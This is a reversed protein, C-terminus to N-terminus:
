KAPLLQAVEPLTCWEVPSAGALSAVPRTQSANSHRATFHQAEASGGTGTINRVDYAELLAIGTGDAVGAVVATYGGPPLVLVVGSDMAGPPNPFLSAESGAIVAGFDDNEAIVRGGADHIWLYPNPLAGAVGFDSLTPGKATILVRVPEPGGVHVGGILVQEGTGVFGRASLNELRSSLLEESPLVQGRVEGGPYVNSHFNLYAGGTLLTIPDGTYALDDFTGTIWDGARAYNSATGGGLNTVVPGSAGPAAEHFHSATLTNAFAFLSIRVDVANNAVDYWVIAAGYADSSYTNDPFAAQEQAVDILATLRKPQAILQGRVEGGPFESSHFNLYAGSQLLAVPDGGHTVGRFVGTITNGTRAYVTEDGLNTVVQGNIGTIAEHIHSASITNSFDELTVWLDFTNAAVDYLMVASGMAESRTAPNEQAANITARFEVVQGRTASAFAFVGATLLSLIRTNM